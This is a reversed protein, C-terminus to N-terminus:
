DMLLERLRNRADFLRMKATDEPIGLVTCIESMSMNRCYVLEVIEWHEATLKQLRRLTMASMHAEPPALEADDGVAKSLLDSLHKRAYFLRTKVTSEAIGLVAAVEGITMERDYIMEVIERHEATLKPLCRRMVSSTDAKQAAEHARITAEREARIMALLKAAQPHRGLYERVHETDARELKGTVYWPLLMEIEEREERPTDPGTADAM